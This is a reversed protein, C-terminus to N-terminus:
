NGPYTSVFAIGGGSGGYEPDNIVMIAIDYEPMFHQLLSDARLYGKWDCGLLRDINAVDYTTNFYTDRFVGRSPHDSGSENSAVSIAYVNYYNKYENNPPTAFYANMMGTADTNIFTSLQSETYGESLFVMNIRNSSPGSNLIQTLTAQSIVTSCGLIVLMFSIIFCRRFTTTNM